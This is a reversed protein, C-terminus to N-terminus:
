ASTGSIRPLQETIVVENLTRRGLFIDEYILATGPFQRACALVQARTDDKEPLISVEPSNDKPNRLHTITM